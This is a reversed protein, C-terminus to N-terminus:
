VYSMDELFADTASLSEVRRLVVGSLECVQELAAELIMNRVKIEQPAGFRFIFDVITEALFMTASEEPGVADARLIMGNKADCVTCLQPNAPREYQEDEMASYMYTSDVELVYASKNCNKLDNMLEEDTLILNEFEYSLFPLPESKGTKQEVCYCYMNGEDFNVEPQGKQYFALAESLVELYNTMRLVEDQNFRYPMYGAAYSVFDEENGWYCALSNQSGMVYEASLSLEEQMAMMMFDNLGEYGEYIVIGCRDGQGLISVFAADEKEGQRLCIVDMEEFNGWPNQNKVQAAIQYLREWEKVTAEQRM